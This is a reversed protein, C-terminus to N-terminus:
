AFMIAYTIGFAGAILLIYLFKMAQIGEFDDPEVIQYEKTVWFQYWAGKISIKRTTLSKLAKLIFFTAITVFLLGLIIRTIDVGVVKWAILYMTFTGVKTNGFKESVDVVANLGERVATGVEGGVGAWKGYTQIKSQLEDVKQQTKIKVIQDPTLDSTKVVIKEEVGNQSFSSVTVSFMLLFLLFLKKM